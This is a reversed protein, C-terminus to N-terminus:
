ILNVRADKFFENYDRFFTYTGYALGCLILNVTWIHMKNAVNFGKKEIKMLFKDFREWM